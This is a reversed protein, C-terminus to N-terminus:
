QFLDNMAAVGVTAALRPLGLVDEITALLSRHDYAEPSAYGPRALPSVALLPIHEDGPVGEDWTIFLVGGDQWAPSAIIAPVNEALWRDARAAGTDHGDDRLDPTIWYFARRGVALDAAFLDYPVDHDACRVADDRFSRFYLFPNHKVAYLGGSQQTCPQPMSEMYARWELGAADLQDAITPADQLHREPPGDDRVGFDQGAVAILYNPLSPSEAAHFDAASAYRGALENAYPAAPNGIVGAYRRNELIIVFVHRFRPGGAEVADGLAVDGLPDTATPTAPNPATLPGPGRPTPGGGPGCALAVAAAAVLAELRCTM